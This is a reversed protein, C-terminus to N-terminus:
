IRFGLGSGLHEVGHTDAGPLQGCGVHEVHGAPIGRPIPYKVVTFKNEILSMVDEFYRRFIVRTDMSDRSQRTSIQHSMKRLPVRRWSNGYLVNICHVRVRYEIVYVDDTSEVVNPLILGHGGAQVGELPSHHVGRLVADGQVQGALAHEDYTPPRFKEIRPGTKKLFLIKLTGFQLLAPLYLLRVRPGGGVSIETKPRVSSNKCQFLRFVNALPISTYFSRIAKNARISLREPRTTRCAIDHLAESQGTVNHVGSIHELEAFCRANTKTVHPNLQM